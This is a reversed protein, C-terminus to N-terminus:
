RPSRVGDDETASHEPPHQRAHAVIAEVERLMSKDPEYAHSAILRRIEARADAIADRPHSLHQGVSGCRFVRPTAAYVDRLLAVEDADEAFLTDSAAIQAWRGLDDLNIHWDLGRAYRQAWCIADLDFILQVPSFVEGGIMVGAEDFVRHGHLFGILYLATREMMAQPGPITTGLSSSMGWPPRLGYFPLIEIKLADMLAWEPTGMGYNGTTMDAPKPHPNVTIPINPWLAQLIAAAGLAEALAQVWTKLESMPATMGMLPMSGVGLSSFSGEMALVIDLENGELRFPSPMWVSLGFPWGLARHIQEMYRMHWLTVGHPSYGGCRGYRLGILIQEFPALLPDVDSPLGPASGRVGRHYLAECLKTGAVVDATMMPRLSVCDDAVIHLARGGCCLVPPDDPKPLLGPPLSRLSAVYAEIREESPHIRNGQVRFGTCARVRARLSENQVGFGTQSALSVAARHMRELQEKTLGFRAAPRVRTTNDSTM